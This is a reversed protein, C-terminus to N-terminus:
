FLRFGASFIIQNQRQDTQFATSSKSMKSLSSEYKLDFILNGLDLGLGAQYGFTSTKYDVEVPVNLADEIKYDVLVSAIPGAQVRLFKLFKLGFMVPIDLRNFNANFDTQVGNDDTKIVSGGTSTFLLEPQMFISSGGMRVFLGLHYGFDNDGTQFDEGNVHINATSIGAKPGISFDQGQVSFSLIIASILFLFHKM